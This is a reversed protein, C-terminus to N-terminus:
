TIDFSEMNTIEELQNTAEGIFEGMAYDAGVSIIDTLMTANSIDEAIINTGKSKLRQLISSHEEDESIAEGLKSVMEHHVKVLDFKTNQTLTSVDEINSIYSLMFRFGHSKTLYNILASAQKQKASFDTASIELAISRGPDNSAFGSLLKRLFNFLTADALSAESIKLLFIYQDKNCNVARGIVERLMWRDMYKQLTPTNVMAHIEDAHVISGDTDILQLTVSYIEHESEQEDSFLSIVPQFMQIVRKEDFAKKLRLAAEDLDSDDLESEDNESIPEEQKTKETSEPLDIANSIDAV